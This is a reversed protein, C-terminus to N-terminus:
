SRTMLWHIDLSWLGMVGERREVLDVLTSKLRKKEREMGGMAVAVSSRKKIAFEATVRISREMAVLRSVLRSIREVEKLAVMTAREM